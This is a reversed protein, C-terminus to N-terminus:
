GQTVLAANCREIIGLTMGAGKTKLFRKPARNYGDLSEQTAALLKRVSAFSGRRIRQQTIERFWREILNLWSSSTPMFHSEFRPHRKLWRKVPPCKNTSDNEVIPHL